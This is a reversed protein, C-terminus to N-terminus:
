GRGSWKMDGWFRMGEAAGGQDDLAGWIDFSNHFLTQISDESACMYLDGNARTASSPDIGGRGPDLGSTEGM